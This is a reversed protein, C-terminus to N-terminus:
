VILDQGVGAAPFCQPLRQGPTVIAVLTIMLGVLALTV